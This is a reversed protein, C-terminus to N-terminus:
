YCIAFLHFLQILILVQRLMRLFAGVHLVNRMGIVACTVAVCNVDGTVAGAVGIAVCTVASGFWHRCM